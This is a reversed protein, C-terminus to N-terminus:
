IYRLPNVSYFETAGKARFDKNYVSYDKFIDAILAEAAYASSEELLIVEIIDVTDLVKKGFRRKLGLKTVGIKYLGSNKHLLCYLIAPTHSYTELKAIRGASARNHRSCIPCGIKGQLLNDPTTTSFIINHKLCKTKLPTYSNVYTGLIELKNPFNKNLKKLFKGCNSCRTCEKCGNQGNLLGRPSTTSFIINHKLCKIKLHTKNNVYVGIVKFAGPAVLELKQIFEAQTLKKPM